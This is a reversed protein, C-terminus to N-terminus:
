KKMELRKQREKMYDNNREIFNKNNIRHSKYKKSQKLNPQFSCAKNLIEKELKKKREERDKFENFLSIHINNANSGGRKYSVIKDSRCIFILINTRM